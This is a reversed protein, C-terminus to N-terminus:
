GGNEAYIGVFLFRMLDPKSSAKVCGIYPLPKRNKDPNINEVVLCDHRAYPWLPM